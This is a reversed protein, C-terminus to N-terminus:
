FAYRVQANFSNNMREDSGVGLKYSLGFGWDGNTANIGLTAQVPNSDIVRVSLNDTASVGNIGLKLDADKDGFTPVVSLDFKPALTWGNTEFDASLAVGVPMQFINQDDIDTVYGAEFGDTSLQTYRLGVHPVINVAGAKTLVEGRVGVTFADTDQSFKWAHNYGNATVDNSASMYGIDAAVNWIDAFTKSAYVSFGVLDTDTSAAVGSNKSDTDATGITLAAGLVANCSFQYDLGLVGSYIDSSYGAGDFLKKAEFKGGNVDAWVNVGQARQTLISNRTAVTDAMQNVADMTLTQVGTTAGLSAVENGIKTVQLDTLGNLAEDQLLYSMFAASSSTPNATGQTVTAKALGMTKLGALGQMDEDAKLAVEYTNALTESAGLTLIRGYDMMLDATGAGTVSTESAYFKDGVKTNAVYVVSGSALTLAEDFIATKGTVDVNKADVLLMSGAAVSVDTLSTTKSAAGTAALTGTLTEYGTETKNSVFLVSKVVNKDKNSEATTDGLSYGTRDFLTSAAANDTTGVSVISGRGAEVTAGSAVKGVAVTSAESTLLQGDKWAPDAFISGSVLEGAVLSGATDNDGVTVNGNLKGVTASGLVESGSGANLKLTGAVSLNGTVYIDNVTLDYATGSADKGMTMTGDVDLSGLVSTGQVDLSAAEAVVMDGAGTSGSALAGIEAGNGTVVLMTGSDLTAGALAGSATQVLKGTGNLKLTNSVVLSTATGSLKAAAYSGALAGSVGTVTLDKLQDLEVGGLNKISDYAIESGSVMSALGSVGVNALSVLGTGSAGNFKTALTKINEITMDGAEIGTVNVVGKNSELGAFGSALTANGSAIKLGVAEASVNLEGDTDVSFTGSANTLSKSITLTGGSVNMNAGSVLKLTDIGVVANDDITATSGSAMDLGALTLKADGNVEVTHGSDGQQAQVTITGFTYDGATFAINVAGSQGGVSANGTYDKGAVQFKGGAFTVDGDAFAISGSNVVSENTINFVGTKNITLRDFKLHGELANSNNLVLIQTNLTGKVTISAAKAVGTNSFTAGEKVTLTETNFVSSKGESWQGGSTTFEGAKLTLSTVDMKGTNSSAKVGEVTLNGGSVTGANVLTGVTTNGGSVTYTGSAAVNLTGDVDLMGADSKTLTSGKGITVDGLVTMKAGSAVSFEGNGTTTLAGSAAAGSAEVYRDTYDKTTLTVSQITVTAGSQAVVKTGAASNAASNAASRNIVLDGVNATAGSAVTLVTAETGATASSAAAGSALKNVAAQTTVDVSGIGTAFNVTGANVKIAGVFSETSGNVNVTGKGNFELTNNGNGAAISDLGAEAAGTEGINVVRRDAANIVLTSYGQLYAFGGMDEYRDGLATAGSVLTTGQGAKNGAYTVDETADLTLSTTSGSQAWLRIAGGFGETQNNTFSANTLTITSNDLTVAGGKGASKNGNFTLNQIQIATSGGSVKSIYLAGFDKGTESVYGSFDKGNWVKSGSAEEATIEDSTTVTVTTKATETADAAIASGAVGAMVAAVAAAVVTKVTKGQYSSAKESTVVTGRTLSRAVKFTKNM